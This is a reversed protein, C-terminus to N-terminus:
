NLFGNLIQAQPNKKEAEEKQRKEEEEKAKKIAQPDCHAKPETGPLFYETKTPCGECPLLGNFACIQM